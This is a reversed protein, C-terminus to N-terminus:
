EPLSYEAVVDAYLLDSAVVHSHLTGGGELGAFRGTGKVFAMSGKREGVGFGEEGVQWRVVVTAGDAFTFEGYGQATGAVKYADIYGHTDLVYTEGGELFGVGRSAFFTLVHGEEDGIEATHSDTRHYVHRSRWSQKEGTPM